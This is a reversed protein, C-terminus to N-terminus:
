LTAMLVFDLPVNENVLVCRGAHVRVRERKRERGREREEERERVRERERSIKGTWHTALITFILCVKNKM